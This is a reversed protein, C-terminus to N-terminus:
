GGVARPIEIITQVYVNSLGLGSNCLKYTAPTSNLELRLERFGLDKKKQMVIGATKWCISWKWAKAPDQSLNLLLPM